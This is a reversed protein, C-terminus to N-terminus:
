KNLSNEDDCRRMTLNHAATTNQESARKGDFQTGTILNETEQQVGVARADHM